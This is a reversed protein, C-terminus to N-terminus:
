ATFTQVRIEGTNMNVTGTGWVLLTNVWLYAPSATNLRMNLRVEAIGSALDPMWLIGGADMAIREGDHTTITAHINLEFRGDARVHAYDAGSIRGRLREGEIPGEYTIDFRAGQPPIPTEGRLMEHISYGFDAIGTQQLAEDFFHEGVPMAVETMM